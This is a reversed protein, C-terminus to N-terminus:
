VYTMNLVNSRSGPNFTLGVRELTPAHLDGLDGLAAPHRRAGQAVVLAEPEEGRVPARVPVPVEVLAVEFPQVEDGRGLPEAELQRLDSPEELEGVRAGAGTHLGRELRQQGLLDGDDLLLQLYERLQLPLQALRLGVDVGARVAGLAASRLACEAGEGPRRRQAGISVRVSLTLRQQITLVHHGKRRACLGCLSMITSCAQVRRCPPSGREEPQERWPPRGPAPLARSPCWVCLEGVDFAPALMRAAAEAP